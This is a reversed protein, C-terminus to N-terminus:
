CHRRSEDEAAGGTGRRPAEIPHVGGMPGWSSMGGGDPGTQWGRHPRVAMKAADGFPDDTGLRSPVKTPVDLLGNLMVNRGRGGAKSPTLMHGSYM